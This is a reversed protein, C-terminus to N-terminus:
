LLPSPVAERPRYRCSRPSAHFFRKVVSAGLFPGVSFSDIALYYVTSALNSVAMVIYIRFFPAKVWELSSYQFYLTFIRCFSARGM